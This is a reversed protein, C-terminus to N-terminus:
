RDKLEQTWSKPALMLGLFLFHITRSLSCRTMFIRKLRTFVVAILGCRFFCLYQGFTNISVKTHTQPLSHIRITVGESNWDTCSVAATSRSFFCRLGSRSSSEFHRPFLNRRYILAITMTLYDRM